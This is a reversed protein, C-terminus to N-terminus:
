CVMADGIMFYAKYAQVNKYNHEYAVVGILGNSVGGGFDNSGILYKDPMKAADTDQASTVGPVKIWDWTPYIGKYEMGHTLINTAGLPLNYGLLNETNLCETGYTRKSIIKASLYYNEGRHTMIDSKWFYKNGPEPFSAGSLHAKWAQYDNAKEPDVVSLKDLVDSSINSGNGSRSISRGLTGFDM